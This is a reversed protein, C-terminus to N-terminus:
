FFNLSWEVTQPLFFFGGLPPRHSSATHRKPRDRQLRTRASATVKLVAAAAHSASQEATLAAMSASQAAAASQQM